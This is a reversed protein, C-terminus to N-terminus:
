KEPLQFISPHKNAEPLEQNPTGSYRLTQVKSSSHIGKANDEKVVTHSAIAKM